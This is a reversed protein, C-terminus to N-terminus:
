PWNHELRFCDHRARRRNTHTSKTGREGGAKMNHRARQGPRERHSQSSSGTLQAEMEVRQRLNIGNTASVTGDGADKLGGRRELRQDWGAMTDEQLGQIGTKRREHKIKQGKGVKEERVTYCYCLSSSFLLSCKLPIFIFLLGM